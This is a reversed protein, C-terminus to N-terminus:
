DKQFFQILVVIKFSLFFLSMVWNAERKLITEVSGLFRPGDTSSKSLLENCRTALEKVISQQKETLGVNVNPKASLPTELTQLVILIQTLIQRRFNPDKM